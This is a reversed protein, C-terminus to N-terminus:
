QYDLNNQFKEDILDNIKFQDHKEDDSEESIFVFNEDISFDFDQNVDIKLTKQHVFIFRIRKFYFNITQSKFNQKLYLVDYVNLLFKRTYKIFRRDIINKQHLENFRQVIVIQLFVNLSM